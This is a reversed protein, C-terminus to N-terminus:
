REGTRETRSANRRSQNLNGGPARVAGPKIAEEALATEEVEEPPQVAAGVAAGDVAAVVAAVVVAVVVADRLDEADV